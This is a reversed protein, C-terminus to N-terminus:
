DNLEIVVRDLKGTGRYPNPGQYLKSVQTGTDRGIDFTEALSYTARHMENMYVSDQKKGNVHLEGTGAFM